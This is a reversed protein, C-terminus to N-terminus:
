QKRSHRDQRSWLDCNSFSLNQSIKKGMSKKELSRIEAFFYKTLYNKLTPSPIKSFGYFFPILIKKQLYPPKPPQTTWIPSPLQWQTTLRCLNCLLLSGGRGYHNLGGRKRRFQHGVWSFERWWFKVGNSWKKFYQQLFKQLTNLTLMFSWFKPIMAM